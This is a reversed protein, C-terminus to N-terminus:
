VVLELSAGDWEDVSSVSTGESGKRVSMVRRTGGQSGM